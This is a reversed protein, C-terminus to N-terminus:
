FTYSDNRPAQFKTYLLAAWNTLGSLQMALMCMLIQWTM